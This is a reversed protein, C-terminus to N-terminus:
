QSGYSLSTDGPVKPTHMSVHLDLDEQTTCFVPCAVNGEARWGCRYVQTDGSVLKEAKLNAIEENSENLQHELRDIEDQKVRLDEEFYEMKEELTENENTLQACKAVLEPHEGAKRRLEDDNTRIAQERLFIAQNRWDRAESKLTEERLEFTARLLAVGEKTQEEAIKVRKELGVNAARKEEAFQSARLYIEQFEDRQQEAAAQERRASDREAEVAAKSQLAAEISAREVALLEETARLREALDSNGISRAMTGTQAELKKIREQLVSNRALEMALKLGEDTLLGKLRLNEESKVDLLGELRLNEESKANLLSM